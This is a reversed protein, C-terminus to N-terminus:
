SYLGEIKLTAVASRKDAITYYLRNAGEKPVVSNAFAILQNGPGIEAPPKIIPSQSRNYIAGTKVDIIITGVAWSPTQDEPNKPGRGNYFMLVDGKSTILLPGPSTHQSDWSNERTQLLPRHNRYPGLLSPSEAIAIESKGRGTHEYIMHWLGDKGLFFEPEKVMDVQEGLEKTVEKPTLVTRKESDLANLSKGSVVQISVLVGPKGGPKPEVASHFVFYQEDVKVITPDEVALRDLSESTKGPSVPIEGSREFDVGNKGSAFALVSEPISQGQTKQVQRFLTQYYKNIQVVAMSMAAIIEPDKDTEVPPSFTIPKIESVGIEM